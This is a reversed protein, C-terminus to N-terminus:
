TPACRRNRIWQMALCREACYKHLAFDIGSEYAAVVIM